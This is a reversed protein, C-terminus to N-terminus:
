GRDYVVVFMKRLPRHIEWRGSWGSPTSVTDGAELRISEAGDTHLTAEGSIVHFIETYGDRSARSEGPTGEWYGMQVGAAPDAYFQREAARMGDTLAPGWPAFPGLSVSGGRVLVPVPSAIEVESM